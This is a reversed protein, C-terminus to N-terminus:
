KLETYDPPFFVNHKLNIQNLTIKGDKKLIKFKPEDNPMLAMLNYITVDEGNMELIIDGKHISWRRFASLKRVDTIIFDGNSNEIVTIKLNSLYIPAFNMVVRNPWAYAYSNFALLLIIILYKM